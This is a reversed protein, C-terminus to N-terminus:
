SAAQQCKPWAPPCTKTFRQSPLTQKEGDRTKQLMTLEESVVLKIGAQWVGSVVLEAEYQLGFRELDLDFM